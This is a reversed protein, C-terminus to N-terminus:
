PHFRVCQREIGCRQIRLRDVAGALHQTDQRASAAAPGTAIRAIGTKSPAAARNNSAAHITIRMSGLGLIGTRIPRIDIEIAQETAELTTLRRTLQGSISFNAASGQTSDRPAQRLSGNALLTPGIGYPRRPFPSV